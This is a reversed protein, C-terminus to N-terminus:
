TALAKLLEALALMESAQWKLGIEIKSNPLTIQLPLMVVPSPNFTAPRPLAIFVPKSSALHHPSQKDDLLRIWKSVLNANLGYQLAISAISTDPEKCAQVIRQKFETSYTRRKRAVSVTLVQSNTTM